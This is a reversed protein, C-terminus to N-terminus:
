ILHVTSTWHRLCSLKLKIVHLSKFERIPIHPYAYYFIIGSRRSLLSILIERVKLFNSTDQKSCLNFLFMLASSAISWTLFHFNTPFIDSVCKNYYSFEELPYGARRSIWPERSRVRNDFIESLFDDPLSELNQLEKLFQLRFLYPGM